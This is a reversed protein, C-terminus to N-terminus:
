RGAEAHFKSSVDACFSVTVGHAELLDECSTKVREVGFATTFVGTDTFRCTRECLWSQVFAPGHKARAAAVFAATAGRPVTDRFASM